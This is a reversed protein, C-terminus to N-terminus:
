RFKSIAADAKGYRILIWDDDEDPSKEVAIEEIMRGETLQRIFFEKMFNRRDPSRSKCDEDFKSYDLVGALLETLMRAPLKIQDTEM